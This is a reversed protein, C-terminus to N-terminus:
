DPAGKGAQMLSFFGSRCDSAILLRRRVATGVGSRRPPYPIYGQGLVGIQCAYVLDPTFFIAGIRSAPYGHSNSGGYRFLCRSVFYGALAFGEHRSPSPALLRPRNQNSPPLGGSSFHLSPSVTVRSSFDPKCSDGM